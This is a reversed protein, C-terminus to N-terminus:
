SASRPRSSTWRSVTSTIRPPSSTGPSATRSSSSSTSIRGTIEPPADHLAPHAAPRRDDADPAVVGVEARGVEDVVAPLLHAPGDVVEGHEAGALADQDGDRAALVREGEPLDEGGEAVLDVAEVDAEPDAVVALPGA